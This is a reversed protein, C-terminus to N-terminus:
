DMTGPASRRLTVQTCNDISYNFTDITWGQPVTEFLVQLRENFDDGYAAIM